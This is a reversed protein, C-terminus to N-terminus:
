EDENRIFDKFVQEPTRKYFCNTHLKCFINSEEESYQQDEAYKKRWKQIEENMDQILGYAKDAKDLYHLHQNLSKLLWHIEETM